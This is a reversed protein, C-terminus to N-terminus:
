INESDKWVSSDNEHKILVKKLKSGDKNFKVIGASELEDILRCARAYGTKFHRRILQRNILGSKKVLHVVENFLCDNVM